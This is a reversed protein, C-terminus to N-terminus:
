GYMKYYRFNYFLKSIKRTLSLYQFTDNFIRRKIRGYFTQIGNEM